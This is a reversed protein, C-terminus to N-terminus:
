VRTTKMMLARFCINVRSIPIEFFRVGNMDHDVRSLYDDLKYMSDTLDKEAMSFFSELFINYIIIFINSELLFNNVMFTWYDNKQIM